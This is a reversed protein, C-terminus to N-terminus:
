SRWSRRSRRQRRPWSPRSRQWPLVWRCPSFSNRTPHPPSTPCPHLALLVCLLAHVLLYGVVFFPLKGQVLHWRSLPLSCTSSSRVDRSTSSTTCSACSRRSPALIAPLSRRRSSASCSPHTPSSPSRASTCSCRRGTRKRGRRQASCGTWRWGICFRFLPSLKKKIAFKVGGILHRSNVQLKLDRIKGEQTSKRGLVISPPVLFNKM